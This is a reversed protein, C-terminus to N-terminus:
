SLTERATAIDQRINQITRTPALEEVADAKGKFFAALAAGACCIAVILAAWHPALGYATIAFIIAQLALLVSLFALVGSVSMWLGARLKVSLKQSLEARALRVEKQFLDILSSVVESLARPLANDKLREVM